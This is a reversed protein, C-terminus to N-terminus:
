PEGGDEFRYLSIRTRGHVRTKWLRLRHGGPDPDGSSPTQIVALGGNKMIRSGDLKELLVGSMGEDYPPDALVLGFQSRCCHLYSLCDMAVIDAQEGVGLAAVNRRLAEAARRDGEVLVAHSAGRSLAELGLAGTGAYLDLVEEGDVLGGLMNFIAGRVVASTPRTVKGEPCCLKRGRYRGSIIRLAASM